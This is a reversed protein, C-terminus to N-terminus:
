ATKLMGGLAVWSAPISTALLLANVHDTPAGGPLSSPISAGLASADGDYAYAHIGAAGMDFGLAGLELNLLAILALAANVQVSLSPVDVGLAIAANISAVIDTALSLSATISPPTVNLQAVLATQLALEAEIRPVASALSLVLGPNIQATSLSGLYTLSM